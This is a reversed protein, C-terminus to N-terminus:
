HIIPADPPDYPEGNVTEGLSLELYNLMLMAFDWLEDETFDTTWTWNRKQKREHAPTSSPTNWVTIGRIRRQTDGIFDYNSHAFAHRTQTILRSFKDCKSKLSPRVILGVQEVEAWEIDAGHFYEERLCVLVGLMSNFLQTFEYVPAGLDYQAYLYELNKRTRRAIEIVRENSPEM